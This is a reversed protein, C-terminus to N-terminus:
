KLLPRKGWKECLSDYGKTYKDFGGGVCEGETLMVDIFDGDRTQYITPFANWYQCTACIKYDRNLLKKLLFM